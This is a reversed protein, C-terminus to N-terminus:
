YPLRQIIRTGNIVLNIFQQPVIFLFIHKKIMKFVIMQNCRFRSQNSRQLMIIRMFITNILLVVMYELRNWCCINYVRVLILSFQLIKEFPKSFELVFVIGFLFHWDFVTFFVYPIDLGFSFVLASADAQWVIDLFNLCNNVRLREVSWLLM